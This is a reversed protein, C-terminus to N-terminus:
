RRRFFMVLGGIALVILPFGALCMAKLINETVPDIMGITKASTPGAAIYDTKKALWYLSNVVLTTNIAPPPAFSFGGKGDSVGIPRTVYWDAMSAGVSMAVIRSEVRGAALDEDRVAAMALDMPASVDGDDGYAPRILGGGSRITEALDRIRTRTAWMNIVNGPISLISETKVGSIESAEMPCADLWFVRQGQLPLGIVHEGFTSVPLYTFAEVNIKFWGPRSEDPNGMIVRADNVIRIGWDDELYKNVETNPSVPIIGMPSRMMGGPEYMTLFVARTGADIERRIQDVHEPGFSSTTPMGGFAPMPSKPPPPLILLIKPLADDLEPRSDPQALNWQEVKFNGAEIAKRLEDLNNPPLPLPPGPMPRRGLMQPPPEFYTIIVTGFVGHGMKLMKSAIASDGNFAREGSAIGPGRDMLRQQRPFVEDFTAVETKKGVEIIVINDENVASSLAADKVDPLGNVTDLMQNVPELLSKFLSGDEASKFAEATKADPAALGALAQDTRVQVRQFQQAWHAAVSDIGKLNELQTEPKLHKVTETAASALKDMNPAIIQELNEVLDGRASAITGDPLPVMVALSFYASARIVSSNDEGAALRLKDSAKRIEEAALPAAKAFAQLVGAADPAKIKGDKVGELTKLMADVAKRAQAMADTVGKRSKAVPEPVDKVKKIVEIIAQMNAQIRDLADKLQSALDAYDPLASRDNMAEAIKGRIEELHEASARFSDAVGASLGFQTLFADIPMEGWETEAAKLAQVMQPSTGLFDKELLDAHAQQADRHRQRLRAQLKAQQGPAAVNVIEVPKDRDLRTMKKHLGTLYDWVEEHHENPEAEEGDEAQRPLYVCTLTIKEDLADLIKITRDSIGYQGLSEIDKRYGFGGDKVDKHVVANVGIALTVAVVVSVAVMSAYRLRSKDASALVLLVVAATSFIAAPLLVGLLPWDINDKWVAPTDDWVLRVLLFVISYAMVLLWVVLLTQQAWTRNRLLAMGVGALAVLCAMKITVVAVVWTAVGEHTSVYAILTILGAMALGVSVMAALPTYFPDLARPAEAPLNGSKPAEVAGQVAQKPKKSKDVAM